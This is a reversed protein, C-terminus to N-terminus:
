VRGEGAERGQAGERGAKLERGGQRSSGGQGPRSFEGPVNKTKGTMRGAQGKSAAKGALILFSAQHTQM